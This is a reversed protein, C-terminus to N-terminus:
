DALSKKAFLNERNQRGNQKWKPFLTLPLPALLFYGEIGRRREGGGGWWHEKIFVVHSGYKMCPSKGISCVMHLNKKDFAVLCDDWNLQLRKNGGQMDGGYFADMEDGDQCNEVNIFRKQLTRYKMFYFILGFMMALVLSVISPKWEPSLHEHQNSSVFLPFFLM